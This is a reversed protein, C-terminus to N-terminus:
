LLWLFILLKLHTMLIHTTPFPLIAPSFSIFIFIHFCLFKYFTIFQSTNKYIRELRNSYIIGKFQINQLLLSKSETAMQCTPILFFNTSLSPWLLTIYINLKDAFLYVFWIKFAESAGDLAKTNLDHSDLSSPHPLNQPESELHQPLYM